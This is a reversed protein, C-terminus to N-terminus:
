SPRMTGLTEKLLDQIKQPNAKGKSAKMVQGVFYGLLKEKGNFYDNVKDTNTELVEQIWTQLAGTDSIQVLNHEKMITHPSQGTDFMIAFVDKGLLNSLEKRTLIDALEAIHEVSIPRQNITKEHKKLTAFMDGIMLNALTKGANKETVHALASEFFHAVDVDEVLLEADYQSLGYDHMFRQQKQRPTEPLTDTISQITEPDIVLKPLDPDPFYFYDTDTEKVRMSVTQGTNVDFMRTEQVITQDKTVCQIQRDIEYHLAAHLFRLSNMNKLEVRTGLPDDPRRISINADVRLNGKEMDGHCVGFHRMLCRFAKVYNVVEDPTNLDPESVIEMLGVGARNMDICSFAVSQDHLSKGADQEIHIRNLRIIKEQGDDDKITMTGGSILPNRYQSIQYGSPNDPYMYHKREMVSRANVTGGIGLGLKIAQHVCAQNLVPLMGPFAADVFSVCANPECGFVRSPAGSFMKSESVIQAHIELGIVAQFGNEYLKTM